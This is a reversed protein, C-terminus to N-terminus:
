YQFVKLVVSHLVCMGLLLEKVSRATRAQIAEGSAMQYLDAYSINHYKDAIPQLLKVAGDL